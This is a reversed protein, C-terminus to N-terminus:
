LQPFKEIKESLIKRSFYKSSCWEAMNALKVCHGSPQCTEDNQDSSLALTSLVKNDSRVWDRSWVCFSSKRDFDDVVEDDDAVDANDEDDDAGEYVPKESDPKSLDRM